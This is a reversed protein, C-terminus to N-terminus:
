VRRRSIRRRRACCPSVGSMTILQDRNSPLGTSNSPLVVTNTLGRRPCRAPRRNPASPDLLFVKASAVPKGAPDIVRGRIMQVNTASRRTEPSQANEDTSDAASVAQVYGPGLGLLGVASTAILGGVLVLTMPVSSVRTSISRSTDLIRHVRRALESRVSIVGVGAAVMPVASLEALDVLHHAYEQRDCGFQVVVDDCVEEASSEIRRSLLWLLPQFFLLSTALQRLLNWHCDHRKLHALEHVIVDHVSRGLDHEPLMVAPRRIGTLCPSSLLPSCLVQPVAVRLASAVQRCTQIIDSIAPAATRRVEAMRRYAVTLRLMLVTSTGLWSAAMAMTLWGYLLTASKWEANAIVKEHAQKATLLEDGESIPLSAITPEREQNAAALSRSQAPKSQQFAFRSSRGAPLRGTSDTMEARPFVWGPPIAVLWRSVGVASLPLHALPCILIAVLTLRYVASAAVAGRRRLPRAIALGVILLLTSQILWNVACQLMASSSSFAIQMPLGNM